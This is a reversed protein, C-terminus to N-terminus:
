RHCASCNQPPKISKESVFQSVFQAQDSGPKWKMNTVEAIPRLHPQPHRHCDICWSMSLPKMQMVQEMDAVNGHCEVCGVGVRLHASHNFYVYDPLKHVRVWQIPKSEAWAERLPILKENQRGIVSHCNMCTKISPVNSHPSVEVQSHCYRCDMGLDGAHLKHSYAIPQVPRYGVDTYKPSGYYWFFGVIALVLLVVASLTIVPIRNAGPSFIQAM